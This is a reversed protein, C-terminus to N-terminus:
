VPATVRPVLVVNVPEVIVKRLGTIPPAFLRPITPLATNPSAAPSVTVPRVVRATDPAVVM